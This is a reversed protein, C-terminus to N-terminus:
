SSLQSFKRKDIVDALRTTRDPLNADTRDNAM